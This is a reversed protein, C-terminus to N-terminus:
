VGPIKKAVLVESTIGFQSIKESHILKWLPSKSQGTDTVLKQLEVPRCGGVWKPNIRHILSWLRTINASVFGEGCSLSALTLLGGTNLVRYAEAILMSIETEALLDLVYTSLFRDFYNDEFPLRVEGETQMLHAREAMPRLRQTALDVMTSSIDLGHYIANPPLCNKFLREALRGTGCGFELVAQAHDFDAHKLLNEIAKDEYFSQTDQKAGFRDYFQRAEGHTLNRM